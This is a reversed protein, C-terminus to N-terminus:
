SPPLSLSSPPASWPSVASESGCVTAEDDDNEEDDDDDDDDGGARGGGGDAATALSPTPM